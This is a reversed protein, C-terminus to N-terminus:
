LILCAEYSKESEVLDIIRSKCSDRNSKAWGNILLVWISGGCNSVHVGPKCRSIVESIQAMNFVITRDVRKDHLTCVVFSIFLYIFIYLNM